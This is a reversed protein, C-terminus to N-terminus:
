SNEWSLRDGVATKTRQLTGAPLELVGAASLIIRSIRWPPYTAMFLVTRDKGLFAVDIAYRMFFTHISRCPSIWM